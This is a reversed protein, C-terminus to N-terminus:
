SSSLNSSSTHSVDPTNALCAFHFPNNGNEDPSMLNLPPKKGSAIGWLLVCVPLNGQSAAIKMTIGNYSLTSASHGQFFKRRQLSFATNSSPSFQM